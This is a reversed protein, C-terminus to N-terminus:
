HKTEKKKGYMKADAERFLKYIFEEGDCSGSACGGAVCFSEPNGQSCRRTSEEMDAFAKEIQDESVGEMLVVFEDGGIRYCEGFDSFAKKIMAASAQILRDGATHGYTDNIHKLNNIDFVAVAFSGQGGRHQLVEADRDFAARNGMDTMTDKYALMRYTDAEMSTRLLGVGRKLSGYCLFIYFAILGARFFLSNDGSGLPRFSLLSAMGGCSLVVIGALVFSTDSNRYCIQERLCLFISVAVAAAMLIHTVPLTKLLDAIGAMYLGTCLFTQLIFLLSFIELVRKGHSCIQRLFFLFPVPLLTFLLFSLIYVPALQDTLFQPIKSDTIIWMTSILIFVGLYMFDLRNFDLRKFRLFFFLLLFCLGLVGSLIAFLAIGLCDKWIMQTVSSRSGLIVGPIKWKGPTNPATLRVAVTKGQLDEPLRIVNWVNGLIWGAPGKNGRGYSYVKKKEVFVEAFQHYNEMCLVADEPATETLDRYITLSERRSDKIVLPLESIETKKGQDLYYWGKSLVEAQGQESIGIHDTIFAKRSYLFVGAALVLSLCFFVALFRSRKQEKM